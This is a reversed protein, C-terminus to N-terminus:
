FLSVDKWVNVSLAVQLVSGVYCTNGLNRIGTGYQRVNQRKAPQLPGHLQPEKSRTRSSPSILSAPRKAPLDRSLLQPTAHDSPLPIFNSAMFAFADDEQKWEASCCIFNSRHFCIFRSAQVSSHLSDEDVTEECEDRRHIKKRRFESFESCVSLSAFLQFVPCRLAGVVCDRLVTEYFSLMFLGCDYCNKQM